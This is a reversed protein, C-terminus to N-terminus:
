LDLTVSIPAHDSGMIEDHIDADIIKNRLDGSVFIYDIRWGVNRERARSKQDWWSYKVTDPHVYRFTDIFGAEMFKGLAEREEPLFGSVKHNNKPRALDIEQYATNTDGICIVSKGKAEYEKAKTLFANYFDIKRQVHEPGRKGNPFYITFLVFQEFETIVTRGDHDLYHDGFGHETEGIIPLKTYTAVGSYGKKEASTWYANYAPPNLLNESLQEPWAKTENIGIIDAPEANLWDVFVSRM